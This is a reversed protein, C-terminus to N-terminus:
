QLTALYAVVDEVDQATLVPKGRFQPAVRVLGDIRHYPPMITAANLRSQDVVRLRLQAITLSRGVGALKPALDGMFRETPEPVEHCILCNGVSRDLVIRRGRSADGIYGGLPAVIADGTVVYPVVQAMGDAPLTAAGLAAVLLQALLRQAM